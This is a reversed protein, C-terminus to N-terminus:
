KGSSKEHEKEKWMSYLVEYFQEPSIGEITKWGPDSCWDANEQVIFGGSKSIGIVHAVDDWLQADSEESNVVAFYFTPSRESDESTYDFFMIRNLEIVKAVDVM